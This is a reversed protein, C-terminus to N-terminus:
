EAPDMARRSSLRSALMNVISRRFIWYLCAVAMFVFWIEVHDFGALHQLTFLGIFSCSIVGMIVVVKGPDVGKDVLLTHLHRRDGQMLRQGNRAREVIVACMDLLPLAVFYVAEVPALIRRGEAVLVYVLFFGLLRSGSDGLFCKLFRGFLGLNAVLVVAAAASIAFAHPALGSNLAYLLHWFGVGCMAILFQTVALGDIGDTMNFANTLALYMLVTIPTALPGLHLDVGLVVGLTEIANGTIMVFALAMVADIMLRHRPSLGSHDDFAHVVTVISILPLVPDALNNEALSWAWIGALIALGGTLPVPRAHKKRLADPHDILDLYPAIINLLTLAVITAGAVTAFQLARADVATWIAVFVAELTVPVGQVMIQM